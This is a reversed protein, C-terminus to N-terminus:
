VEFRVIFIQDTDFTRQIPTSLKAIALLEYDRNYLGITTIYPKIINGLMLSQAKWSDLSSSPVNNDILSQTVEGTIEIERRLSPNLFAFNFESADVKVDIEHRTIKVDSNYDLSIESGSVIKIGDSNVTSTGSSTDEAIVAIGNDYFINGVYSGTGSQSVFLNGYRDDRVTETISDVQLEFSGPKIREGYFEQGVSVVYFRETLDWLSSTIEEYEDFFRGNTYFLHNISAYLVHEYVGTEPNLYPNATYNFLSSDGNARTINVAGDLGGTPSTIVTGLSSSQLTWSFPSSAFYDQVTYDKAQVTGFSKM